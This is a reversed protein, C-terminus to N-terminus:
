RCQLIFICRVLYPVCLLGSGDGFGRSWRFGEVGGELLRVVEMGMGMRVEVGGMGGFCWSLIGEGSLNQLVGM